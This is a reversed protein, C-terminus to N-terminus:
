CSGRRGGDGELARRAHRLLRAIDGPLALAPGARRRRPPSGRVSRWRRSCSRVRSHHRSDLASGLPGSRYASLRLARPGEGTAPLYQSWYWRMEETSIIYGDAFTEYSPLACAADLVPYVLLQARIAPGGRDRSMLAAAAALNGGASSGAVALRDRDAGLRGANECVFRLAAYSDEAAIPYTHEPALRYDVNAVLAGARWVSRVAFRTATNSTASSGDGATSIFSWPFNPGGPKASLSADHDFRGCRVGCPRDCSLGFGCSHALAQALGRPERAPRRGLACHNSSPRGAPAGGLTSRVRRDVPM